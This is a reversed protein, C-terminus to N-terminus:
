NVMAQVYSLTNKPGDVRATIRYYVQSTGTLSKVGAMKPGGKGPDDLTVCEQGAPATPGIIAGPLLCMRHIVFQVSNGAKDAAGGGVRVALGSTKWVSSTAPDFDEGVDKVGNGNRDEFWTAYYGNAPASSELTVPGQARLWTLATEVGADGSVTANQRFALNGATLISSGSARMVAIGALTMAVLVILAIFVVLGHERKQIHPGLTMRVDRVTSVCIM